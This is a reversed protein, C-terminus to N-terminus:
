HIVGPLRNSGKREEHGKLEALTTLLTWAKGDRLRLHGSGRGVATEFAIWADVIGDAATPSETTRWGSPQVRDLTHELLDRVGDRGEVTKINWTFAVLDRWFGDEAFHEAAAAADGAALAEGFSTLWQDVEAAVSQVAADSLPEERIASRARM